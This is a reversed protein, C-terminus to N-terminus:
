GVQELVITTAIEGISETRHFKQELNFITLVGLNVTTPIQKHVNKMLRERTNSLSYVIISRKKPVVMLMM